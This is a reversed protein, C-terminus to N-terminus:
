TSCRSRRTTSRPRQRPRSRLSSRRGAQCGRRGRTRPRAASAIRNRYVSDARRRGRSGATARRRGREHRVRDHRRGAVCGRPIRGLRSERRGCARRQGPSKKLTGADFFAIWQGDPSFFVGRPTGLGALASPELQDIARVYITGANGIYAIRSGDPSIAVDRDIRSFLMAAAASPSVGFRSVRAPTPRMRLWVVGGGVTVGVIFLAAILAVRSSSWVPTPPAQMAADTRPNARADRIEIRADGIDRM